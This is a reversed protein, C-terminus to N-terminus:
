RPFGERPVLTPLLAARSPSDFAGAAGGVLIIAYLLPLPRLGTRPAPVLARCCALFLAQAPLRIRRRDYTDAMAGGVLALGVALTPGPATLFLVDHAPQCGPPGDM